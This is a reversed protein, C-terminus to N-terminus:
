SRRPNVAFYREDEDSQGKVIGAESLLLLLCVILFFLTERVSDTELTQSLERVKEAVKTHAHSRADPNFM